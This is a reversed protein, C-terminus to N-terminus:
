SYLIQDHMKAEIRVHFTYVCVSVDDTNPNQRFIFGVAQITSFFLFRIM